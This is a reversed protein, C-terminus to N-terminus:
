VKLNQRFRVGDKEAIFAKKKELHKPRGFILLALLDPDTNLLFGESCAKLVLEKTIAPGKPKHMDEYLIKAAKANFLVTLMDLHAHFLCIQGEGKEICLYDALPPYGIGQALDWTKTGKLMRYFIKKMLPDKLDIKELSLEEDTSGSKIAHLLNELFQVDFKKNNPFLPKYFTFILKKALNYLQPHEERGENIIPWLNIKACDRNPRIPKKKKPTEAKPEKTKEETAKGRCHHYIESQYANLIDRHALKHNLYASKIQNNSVQKDLCTFLGFTLITIIAFVLGLLNM